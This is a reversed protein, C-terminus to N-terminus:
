SGWNALNWPTWILPTSKVGLPRYPVSGIKVCVITTMEFNLHIGLDAWSCHAIIPLLLALLLLSFCMSGPGAYHPTIMWM